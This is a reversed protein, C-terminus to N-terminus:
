CTSMDNQEAGTHTDMSNLEGTRPGRIVKTVWLKLEVREAMNRMEKDGRVVHKTESFLLYLM